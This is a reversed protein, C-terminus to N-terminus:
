GECTVQRGSSSGKGDVAGEWYTVGTSCATILEQAAVLPALQLDVGAASHRDAL